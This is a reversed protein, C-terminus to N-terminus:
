QALATHPLSQAKHICHVYSCGNKDVIILRTEVIIVPFPEFLNRGMFRYGPIAVVEGKFVIGICVHLPLYHPTLDNHGNCLSREIKAWPFLNEISLKVTLSFLPHQYLDNTVLMQMKVIKIYLIQKFSRIDLTLCRYLFTVNEKMIVRYNQSSRHLFM